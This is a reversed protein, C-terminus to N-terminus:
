RRGVGPRPRAWNSALSAYGRGRYEPTSVVLRRVLDPPMSVVPEAGALLIWIGSYGQLDGGHHQVRAKEPRLESADCGLESAWWRDAVDVIDQPLM